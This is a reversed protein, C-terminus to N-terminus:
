IPTPPVVEIEVGSSAANLTSESPTALTIQPPTSMGETGTSRSAPASETQSETPLDAIIPPTRDDSQARDTHDSARENSIAPNPTIIALHSSGVTSSRSRGRSGGAIPSGLAAPPTSGGFVSDGDDAHRVGFKGLSDTSSLFKVQEASFGKRPADFSARILSGPVPSSIPCVTQGSAPSDLPLHATSSSASTRGPTGFFCSFRSMSPQLPLSVQSGGMPTNQGGISSANSWGRARTTVGTVNTGSTSMRILGVQSEEDDERLRNGVDSIRGQGLSTGRQHGHRGALRGVFARFSSQPRITRVDNSGDEQISGTPTNLREEFDFQPPPFATDYSPAEGWGRQPIETTSVSSARRRTSDHENEDLPEGDRTSIEPAELDSSTSPEGAQHEETMATENVEDEAEVDEEQPSMHEAIDQETGAGAQRLSERKRSFKM